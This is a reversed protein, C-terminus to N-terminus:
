NQDVNRQAEKKNRLKNVDEILGATEFGNGFNIFERSQDGLNDWERGTCPIYTKGGKFRAIKEM